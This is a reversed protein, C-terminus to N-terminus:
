RIISFYWENSDVYTNTTSNYGCLGLASSTKLEIEEEANERVSLVRKITPGGSSGCIVAYNQDTLLNTFHVNFKGVDLKQILSVNSSGNILCGTLDENEETSSFSAWAVVSGHYPIRSASAVWTTTEQDYTLVENCCPNSPRFIASDQITSILLNHNRTSLSITDTRADLTQFSNNIIPLSDGICQNESIPIGDMM